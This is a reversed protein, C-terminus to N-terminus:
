QTETTKKIQKSFIQPFFPAKEKKLPGFTDSIGKLTDSTDSDDGDHSRLVSVFLLAVTLRFAIIDTNLM